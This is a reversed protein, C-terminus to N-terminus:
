LDYKDSFVRVRDKVRDEHFFMEDYLEIVDSGSSAEAFTQRGTKQTVPQKLVEERFDELVDIDGELTEVTEDVEEFAKQTYDPIEPSSM